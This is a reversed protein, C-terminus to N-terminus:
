KAVGDPGFSMRLVGSTPLGRVTAPEFLTGELAMLVYFRWKEDCAIWVPDGFRGDARVVADVVCSPDKANPPWPVPEPIKVTPPATGPEERALDVATQVEPATTARVGLLGHVIARRVPDPEGTLAHLVAVTTVPPGPARVFSEEDVISADVACSTYLRSREGPTAPGFGEPIAELGGPCALAWGLSRSALSVDEWPDGVRQLAKRLAPSTCTRALGAATTTPDLDTRAALAQLASSECALASLSLWAIM